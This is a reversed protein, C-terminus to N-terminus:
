VNLKRIKAGKEILQVLLIPCGKLLKYYEETENNEVCNECLCRPHIVKFHLAVVEGKKIRIGALEGEMVIDNIAIAYLGLPYNSYLHDHLEELSNM